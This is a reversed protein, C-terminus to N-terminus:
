PKHMLPSSLATTQYTYILVLDSQVNPTYLDAAHGSHVYVKASCSFLGTHPSSMNRRQLSMWSIALYHGSMSVVKMKSCNKFWLSVDQNSTSVITMYCILTQQSLKNRLAMSSLQQGFVILIMSRSWSWHTVGNCQTVPTNSYSWMNIQLQFYNGIFTSNEWTQLDSCHGAAQTPVLPSPASLWLCLLSLWLANLSTSVCQQKKKTM